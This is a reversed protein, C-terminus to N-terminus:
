GRLGDGAEGSLPPAGAPASPDSGENGEDMKAGCQECYPWMQLSPLDCESCYFVGQDNKKIWRGHRVSEMDSYKKEFCEKVRDLIVPADYTLKSFFGDTLETIIIQYQELAHRVGFPTLGFDDCIKKFLLCMSM